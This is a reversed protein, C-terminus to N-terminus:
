FYNSFYFFILSLYPKSGHIHWLYSRVSDISAIILENFIGDKYLVKVATLPHCAPHLYLGGEHSTHDCGPISCKGKDLITRDVAKM